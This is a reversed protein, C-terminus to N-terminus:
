RLNNYLVNLLVEDPDHSHEWYMAGGLHNRKIYRTKELLSEQDDYVILTGTEENWLYPAKAEADWKRKFGQKDVYEALLRSISLGGEVAKGTYAQKLGNNQRNVGTWGKGYFPIGLVLKQTPIGADLHRKVYDVASPGGSKWPWLNSHHATVPSWDGAFDYTMINIWDLYQHLRSMETNEFYRGDGSSAITLLYRDNGSRRREASLSDLQTRLVQLMLTFNQKDEPRFKIGPGPQGPYEWDLDIGDLAYRKLVNIASLAFRMRSEGTLAADSFNDAGWGGISVLVKLQPNKAKLAQLQALDWSAEPERIVVEGSESVLGFAYNIHTLKWANLRQIDARNGFIYAVIRHARPPDTPSMTRCGALAIALILIQPLRRM